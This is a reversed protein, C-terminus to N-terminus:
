PISLLIRESRQEPTEGPVTDAYRSDEGAHYAARLWEILRSMDPQDPFEAYLRELRLGYNEIENLWNDFSSM